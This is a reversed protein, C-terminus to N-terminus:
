CMTVTAARSRHRRRRQRCHHQRARQRHRHLRRRRQLAPDRRQRLPHHTALTSWVTDIGFGALEDVVPRRRRQRLLHRQRDPRRHRDAGAGGDLLDDGADGYLADNDAGGTSCTTASAETRARRLERGGDLLTTEARASCGTTAADGYLPRQRRRDHGDTGLRRRWLARRQRRRCPRCRRRRHHDCDSGLDFADGAIVDNGGGGFITDDGGISGGAACSTSMARSSTRWTAATSRTTAGTARLQAPVAERSTGRDTHGPLGQRGHHQRQRRDVQGLVGDGGDGLAGVSSSVANSLILINDNGGTLRSGAYVLAADGSVFQARIASSASSRTTAAAITRRPSRGGAKRCADRRRHRLPPRDGFHIIDRGGARRAAGRRRGRMVRTSGARRARRGSPASSM